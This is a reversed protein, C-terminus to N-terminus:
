EKKEDWPFYLPGDTRRYRRRLAADLRSQRRAIAKDMKDIRIDLSPAETADDTRKAMDQVNVNVTIHLAGNM